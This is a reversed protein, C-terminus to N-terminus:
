GLVCSVNSRQIARMEPYEAHRIAKMRGRTALERCSVRAGLIYAGPARSFSRPKLCLSPLWRARTNSTSM